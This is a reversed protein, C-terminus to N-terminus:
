RQGAGDPVGGPVTGLPSIPGIAGDIDRRLMEQNDKVVLFYDGGRKVIERCISKQTFAADGTVVAGRLPLQKLLSLMTGTENSDDPVAVTGVVGKLGECFAALLYVVPSEGDRSGRLKKGDIAVHGLTKRKGRVWASLGEELAAVNLGQFFVCWTSACPGRRERIGLAKLDGRSLERGWRAIAAQTKRGCLLAATAITLLAPLPFRRGNAHRRDPVASFVDWLTLEGNEPHLLNEGTMM